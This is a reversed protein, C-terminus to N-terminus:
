CVNKNTLIQSIAEACVEDSLYISNCLTLTPENYGSARSGFIYLRISEWARWTGVDDTTIWLQAVKPLVMQKSIRQNQKQAEKRCACRLQRFDVLFQEIDKKENIEKKTM